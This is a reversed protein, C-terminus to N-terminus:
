IRNTCWNINFIYKNSKGIFGTILKIISLLVNAIITIWSARMGLKYNDM